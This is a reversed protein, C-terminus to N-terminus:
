GATPRPRKTVEEITRLLQAMDMPKGLHADIGSEASRQRDREMTNASLAVMPIGSLRPDPLKRIERAAQWGDMVPMQLDLLVLDYDGPASDRLKELALKGNEVPDVVFGLRELLETEIERNIENDEALLIRQKEEGRANRPVAEEEQPQMRFSLMATFTSGENVTSQIEIKGGMLDVISKAITLGLGIGHVGSLTTNKERTFPEFVRDLFEPSIGVGNDKVSIEYVAHRDPLEEGESISIVVRGGPDTYTIANNSLYLLLQRLKEPDSYVASHRLGRCDLLFTIDKEAAQPKLFSYVDEATERLDCEIEDLDSSGSLESVELVKDIMDLLQRGAKEIRGLYGNLESNDGMCLKALATVGFIAHLPTRMDHSMNSLFVNRSEIALNAKALADAMLAQQGLQQAIEEDVRRYGMVLQFRGGPKSINVVRLQIYQLVGNVLARFNFYFTQRDALKKRINAAATAKAVMEQDEPYVWMVVYTDAFWSYPKPQLLHDFMEAMRSSLRYPVVIDQDLDAYCISSYDISLGNIVELQRLHEESVRIRERDYEEALSRLAREKAQRARELDAKEQLLREHKETADAAFVYFIDGLHGTHAFHGYDEIWRIAGDKRRIRYEVYDLDYQSAEIQEWISREVAELDDPHVLGRFSDGTLARFEEMTECGFIRLLSRNAYLIKEGEDASYLFFGGPMRDMFQAFTEALEAEPWGAGQQPCLMQLVQEVQKREQEPNRVTAM